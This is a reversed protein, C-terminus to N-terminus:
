FDKPLYYLGEQSEILIRTVVGKLELINFPCLTWLNEISLVSM